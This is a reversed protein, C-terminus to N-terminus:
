ELETEAERTTPEETGAEPGDTTTEAEDTATEVTGTDVSEPFNQRDAAERYLAALGAKVDDDGITVTLSKAPDLIIEGFRCVDPLNVAEGETREEDLVCIAYPDKGCKALVTPAAVTQLCENSTLQDRHARECLDFCGTYVDNWALTQEETRDEGPNTAHMETECKEVCAVLEANDALCEAYKPDEYTADWVSSQCRGYAAGYFFRSADVLSFGDDIKHGTGPV